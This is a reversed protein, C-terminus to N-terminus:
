SMKLVVSQPQM